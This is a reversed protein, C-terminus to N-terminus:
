RGDGGGEGKEPFLVDVTTGLARALRRALRLSLTDNDSERTELVSVFRQSVSAAEALQDQTMGARYRAVRIPSTMGAITAGDTTPVVEKKPGRRGM